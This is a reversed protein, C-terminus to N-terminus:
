LCEEIIVFDKFYKTDIFNSENLFSFGAFCCGGESGKKKYLIESVYNETKKNYIVFDTHLILKEIIRRQLDVEYVSANKLDESLEQFIIVESNTKEIIGIYKDVRKKDCEDTWKDKLVKNLINLTMDKNFYIKVKENEFVINGKKNETKSYIKKEITSKTTRNEISCCFFSMLIAILGCIIILRKKM